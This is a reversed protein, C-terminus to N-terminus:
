RSYNHSVESNATTSIVGDGFDWTYMVDSGRFHSAVFKLTKNIILEGTVTVLVSSIAEVAMVEKVCSVMPGFDNAVTVNVLYRCCVTKVILIFM